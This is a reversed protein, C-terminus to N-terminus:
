SMSVRKYIDLLKNMRNKMSYKQQVYLAREALIETNHYSNKLIDIAKSALDHANGKKFMNGVKGQEVLETLGETDSVLVSTKLAMAEMVINGWSESLSPQILVKARCIYKPIDKNCVYNAFTVKDKLGLSTALAEIDKKNQGNGVICVKINPIADVILTIAALFVHMGKMWSIEGIYLLDIDKKIESIDELPLFTKWDKANHLINCKKKVGIDELSQQISDSVGVITCLEHCLLTKFDELLIEKELSPMSALASFPIHSSNTRLSVIYKKGLDKSIRMATMMAPRLSFTAQIHIIDSEEIKNKLHVLSNVYNLFVGDQTMCPYAINTAYTESSVRSSLISVKYGAQSLCVADQYTYIEVGGGEQLPYDHILLIKKM